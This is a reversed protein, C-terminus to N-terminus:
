PHDALQPGFRPKESGIVLLNRARTERDLCSRYGSGTPELGYAQCAEM